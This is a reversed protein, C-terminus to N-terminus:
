LCSRPYGRLRINQSISWPSYTLTFGRYHALNSISFGVTKETQPYCQNGDCTGLKCEIYVIQAAERNSKAAVEIKQFVFDVHVRGALTSQGIWLSETGLRIRVSQVLRAFSHTLPVESCGHKHAQM